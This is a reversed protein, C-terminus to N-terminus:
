ASGLFDFSIKKQLGAMHALAQRLLTEDLHTLEPAELDNDPPRGEAARRAQHALRLGMLHDYVQGAEEFLSAKIMGIDLLARLRDLTHTEALGNKFAYLRAFSVLPALADKLNLVRGGPRPIKAQIAKQAYHLLFPPEQPLKENIRRRLQQALSKDGVVTRFDFFVQLGLIDEPEAASLWGEFTATWVGLPQRWRPNDTMVKGPCRPYGAQALGETVTEGLAAFYASADAEREPEFDELILAHDQDTALTQEERGQSGLALFAYRVPAPGLRAEALEILRSVVADSVATVARTVNRAKAGGDVLAGVLGPLPRRAEAVAEATRAARIEQTMVAPSFRHFLLLDRNRLLGVVRGSEDRVLLHDVNGERMALIAEYVLANQSIAVLPSSMFELVPRDATRGAAVLRARIDRDTLIGVAEGESMVVAASAGAATMRAAVDSVPQKLECFLPPESCPAIPERLFLLSAQLEGILNQNELDRRSPPRGDGGFDRVSLVLAERGGFTVRASALGVKVLQGGRRRLMATGTAAPGAAGDREGAVLDALDLLALEEPRYGLMDLLAANAFAPRGDVVVLTGETGSEVLARYKEHSERLEAEARERIREIRLSQAAVFFLLMGCLAAIALAVQILRGALARIEARVDDLYLGTSVIWGWPEFKKIFSQKPALRDPNDKWQWVYEVYAEPQSALVRVFEVFIAVGRADRFTTLDGGELDPRYPHMIMRPRLDQIWFYDKGEAGYRLNRVRDAAARQAEALPLRGQRAEAEYEALVSFAVNTLERILDRKRELLRSEFAPIFVAFLAAAFLAVAMITPTLIRFVFPRWRFRPLPRRPAPEPDAPGAPGSRRILADRFRRWREAPIDVYAELGGPGAPGHYDSGASAMVGHRDALAALAERRDPPYPGYFVELGDLGADVLEALLPEAAAAEATGAPDLPHAWFALGGAEHIARIAEVAGPVAAATGGSEAAPPGALPSRHGLRRQGAAWRELLRSLAPHSPDFGYALLHIEAGSGAAATVELGSICAVSRRELVRRFPAQGQLTDHDTLAAARVGAEALLGALTEPDLQGDSLSSHCHLNIRLTDKL